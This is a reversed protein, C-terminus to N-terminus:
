ETGAVYCSSILQDWMIGAIPTSAQNHAFSEAMKFEIIIKRISWGLKSTENEEEIVDILLSRDEEKSFTFLGSEVFKPM